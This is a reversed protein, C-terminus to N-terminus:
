SADGPVKLLKPPGTVADTLATGDEFPDLREKARLLLQELAALPVDFSSTNVVITHNRDSRFAEAVVRGSEDLLEVGIGDRVIDSAVQTNYRHTM